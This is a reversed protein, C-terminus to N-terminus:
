GSMGEEERMGQVRPGISRRPQEQPVMGLFRKFIVVLREFIEVVSPFALIILVRPPVNSLNGSFFQRAAAAGVEPTTGDQKQGGQRENKEVARHAQRNQDKQQPCGSEQYQDPRHGVIGRRQRAHNKQQEDLGDAV